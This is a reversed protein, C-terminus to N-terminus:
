KKSLEAVSAALHTKRAAKIAAEKEKMEAALQAAEAERKLAEKERRTLVKATANPDFFAWQPCAMHYLFSSLCGAEVDITEYKLTWDYRLCKGIQAAYPDTDGEGAGARLGMLYKTRFHPQMFSIQLFLGSSSLVRRMEMCMEDAADRVSQRPNWVDGEDVMLADMAAKDIVIDFVTELSFSLKTMDMTVWQMEPRCISHKARMKTIVVESYDINVINHFGEDYLDASFSSNGCGVVLIHVSHGRPTQLYPLLYKKTQAFTLLWDYQEEDQFRGEWYDQRGFDANTKATLHVARGTHKHLHPKPSDSTISSLSLPHPDHLASGSLHANIAALATSSLTSRLLEDLEAAPEADSDSDETEDNSDDSPDLKGNDAGEGDDQGLVQHPEALAGNVFNGEESYGSEAIMIKGFGHPKDDKFWGEYIDGNAYQYTGFGQMKGRKFTGQRIRSDAYKLKGEGHYLGAKFNGIYEDGNEHTLKGGGSEVNFKFNGEYIQHHPSSDDHKRYVMRGYGHRNNNMFAGTYVDGNHYRYVGKGQPLHSYCDTEGEYIGENFTLVNHVDIDRASSRKM